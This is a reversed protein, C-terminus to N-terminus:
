FAHKEYEFSLDDLTVNIDECQHLCVLIAHIAKIWMDISVDLKEWM